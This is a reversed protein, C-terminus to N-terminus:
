SEGSSSQIVPLYTLMDPRSIRFGAGIEVVLPKGFHLTKQLYLNIERGYFSFHLM